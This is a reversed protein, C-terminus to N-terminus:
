ILCTYRREYLTSSVMHALTKPEIEREERMKYMNTKFRFRDARFQFTLSWIPM